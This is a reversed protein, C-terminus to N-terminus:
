GKKKKKGKSKGAMSKNAMISKLPSKKEEKPAEEKDEKHDVEKGSALFLQYHGGRLSEYKVKKGKKLLAKYQLLMRDVIEEKVIITDGVSLVAGNLEAMPMGNAIQCKLEVCDM